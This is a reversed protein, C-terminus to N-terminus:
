RPWFHSLAQSIVAGVIGAITAWAALLTNRRVVGDRHAAEIARMRTDTAAAVDEARRQANERYTFANSEIADQRRAVDDVRKVVERAATIIEASAKMNQDFISRLEKFDAATDERQESLKEWLDREARETRRASEELVALRADDSHPNHPPM